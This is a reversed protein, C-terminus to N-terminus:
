TDNISFRNSKLNSKFYILELIQKKSQQYGDSFMNLKNNTTITLNMASFNSNTNLIIKDCNKIKKKNNDKGQKNIFNCILDYIYEYIKFEKNTDRKTGNLGVALAIDEGKIKNLAFNNVMGGDLYYCNLYKVRSFMIPINSSLRFAMKCSMNPNNIHSLYEVKDMTYNYTVFVVEKNFENYLEKLTLHRGIKSLTLENFWDDVVKWDCLGTGDGLSLININSLKEMFQDTCLRIMIEMPTLGIALLYCIGSGISTGVYNNINSLFNLEYLYQLCGLILIGNVCGGPLVLKNYKTLLNLQDESINQICKIMDNLCNEVEILINKNM